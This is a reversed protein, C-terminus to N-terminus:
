EAPGVVLEQQEIKNWLFGAPNWVGENPQVNGKADTGRVAVTYRGPRTSVWRYEWTRFSYPGLNEGLQAEHWSKGGDDSVEVKVVPGSGSFAIGRLTVPLGAPIKSSGDPSILFSRVPMRNIPIMKVQGAKVATPSTDGRPTDPIRYAPNMWFNNDPQDLVRIWTLCKMWYTAFYGPVVLRVPFGNLMPLPEGNMAYAVIAEDLVPNSLDLSKLFSHSGRGEPGEGSELGQFQVALSGKKPKAAKLLDKLRVGAWLANGMAGNGWQGGPVRPQFRSRSNGSCQNVAFVAVQEYRSLLEFLSLRFPREVNGEVQLRWRALNVGTPLKGLHWRVFFAKNPTIASLYYSRPTELQVARDTLLILPDKQPYVAFGGVSNWYPNAGPGTFTTIPKLPPAIEQPWATGVGGLAGLGLVGAAQLLARRSLEGRKEEM